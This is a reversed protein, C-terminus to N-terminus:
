KALAKTREISQLALYSSGYTRVNSLEIDFTNYHEEEQKVLGEFLQRSVADSCEIAMKNYASISEQEMLRAKEIIEAVTRIRQVDLTPNMDVDGELFLIREALKEVHTMEVIAIKRFLDSLLTFGQDDLHFHFYLYQHVATLEDAVARNLIEIIKKNM